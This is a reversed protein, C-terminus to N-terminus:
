CGSGAACGRGAVWALRAALRAGTVEFSREKLANSRKPAPAYTTIGMPTLGYIAVLRYAM